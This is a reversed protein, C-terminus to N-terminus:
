QKDGLKLVFPYSIVVVGEGKPKPFAWKKVADTICSEVKPNKATTDKVNTATVKGGNDVTIEVTIIGELDPKVEIAKRYEADAERLKEQVQLVVGLRYHAKYLKPDIKLAEEFEHQAEALKKEELYASGLEYHLAPNGVDFKLSESFENQADPWKKMDKYIIGLNYHAAANTPDTAIAQKLDRIASDYLKQRGMEVGHNMLEISRNREQFCGAILVAAVIVPNRKM